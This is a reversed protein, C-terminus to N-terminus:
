FEAAESDGTALGGPRQEQPLRKNTATYWEAKPSIM